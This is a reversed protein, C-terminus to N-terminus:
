DLRYLRIHHNVVRAPELGEPVAKCGDGVLIDSAHIALWGPREWPEDCGVKVTEVGYLELEARAVKGQPHYHLLEIGERRAVRGLEALDQAWDEGVMSIRHGAARGGILWSFHSIHRPYASLTEVAILAVLTGVLARAGRGKGWAWAAGWGALLIAFSLVPMAHRVGIQIQSALLLLSLFAPFVVLPEGAFSRWRGRRGVVLGFGIGLLALFGLPSKIAGMIPFYLRHGFRAKEGMFWGAHGKANQGQITFLGFVFSYPLPVPLWSPLYPLFSARELVQGEHNRTIWNEPQPEHALIEEVTWGSRDFGYSANIALCALLGVIALDRGAHLLRRGKRPATFRPSGRLAHVALVIGLPPLLFLGSFKVACAFGFALGLTLLRGWGPRALYRSLEGVTLVTGLTIPLDTTVLRGHALFIPHLAYLLVVFRAVVVGFRERSWFFLYLGLLLSLVLTVSRGAMLAERFGPYDRAVASDVVEGLDWTEWGELAPADLSAGGAKAPAAQLLNALPPHAVNLRGDGTEWLAMGRTIHNPEDVTPSDYTAGGAMLLAMAGLAFGVVLLSPFDFRGSPSREQGLEGRMDGAM